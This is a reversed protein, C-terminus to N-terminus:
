FLRNAFAPRRGAEAAGDFRLPISRGPEDQAATHLEIELALRAISEHAAAVALAPRNCERSLHLQVLHRLRGASSRRVCAELLKAGQINSLHGFEGLVRNILWRARRSALQMEVDHNFEIALVDVDALAQALREDWSGLDAAYGVAWKPPATQAEEEIRFGFTPGGDHKLALARCRVGPVPVFESGSHYTKVLGAFQLDQFERCGLQLPRLHEGHCFFPVRSAVLRALTRPNWHDSHTHTLVVGRIGDWRFGIERLRSDFQRPGLGIDLLLGQGNWELLSANGGSGSALVTWQGTM